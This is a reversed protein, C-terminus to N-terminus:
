AGLFQSAFGYILVIGVVVWPLATKFEKGNLFSSVTLFKSKKGSMLKHEDINVLIVDKDYQEPYMTHYPCLGNEEFMTVSQTEVYAGDHYIDMPILGDPYIKYLQERTTFFHKVVDKKKIKCFEFRNKGVILGMM